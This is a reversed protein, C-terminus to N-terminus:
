SANAAEKKPMQSYLYRLLSEVNVLRRGRLAGKRRLCVSAVLPNPGLVLTNMHSRSLGSIPCRLGTKPLGIFEARAASTTPAVPSITLEEGPHAIQTPM